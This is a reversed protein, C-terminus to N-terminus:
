RNHKPRAAESMGACSRQFFVRHKATERSCETKSAEAKAALPQLCAPRRARAAWGACGDRKCAGSTHQVAAQQIQLHWQLTQPLGHLQAQLQTQLQWCQSFHSHTSQLAPLLLLWVGQLHCQRTMIRVTTLVCGTKVAQETSWASRLLVLRCVGSLQWIHGTLHWVTNCSNAGVMIGASSGKKDSIVSQLEPGSPVASSAM